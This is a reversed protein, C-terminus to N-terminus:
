KFAEKLGKVMEGLFETAMGKLKEEFATKQEQTMDSPSTEKMVLKSGDPMAPDFILNGAELNLVFHKPEKGNTPVAYIKVFDPGQEEIRYFARIDDKSPNTMFIGKDSITMTIMKLASMIMNRMGEPIKALQPMNASTKEEDVMWIKGFIGKLFPSEANKSFEDAFEKEIQDNNM